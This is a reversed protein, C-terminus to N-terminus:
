KKNKKSIRWDLGRIHFLFWQRKLDSWFLVSLVLRCKSPSQWPRSCDYTAQLQQRWDSYGKQLYFRREVFPIYGVMALIFNLSLLQWKGGRNWYSVNVKDSLWNDKYFCCFRLDPDVVGEIVAHSNLSWSRSLALRSRTFMSFWGLAEAREM